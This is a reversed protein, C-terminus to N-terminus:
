ELGTLYKSPSLSFRDASSSAMSLEKRVGKMADDM